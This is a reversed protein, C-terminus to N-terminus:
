SRVTSGMQSCAQLLAGLEAPITDMSQAARRVAAVSVQAGLARLGDKFLLSRDRRQDVERWSDADTIFSSAPLYRIIDREKLGFIEIRDLRGARHAGSLLEAITQEEPSGDSLPKMVAGVNPRDSRLGDLVKRVKGAAVNDVLITFPADSYHMLFQSDLLSLLNKTGRMAVMRVSQKALEDGILVELAAIEHQGEVVLFRRTLQLLDSPSMGHVERLANTDTSLWPELTSVCTRGRSDRAVHVLRRDSDDLMRPSHTAAFITADLRDAVEALGTSLRDVARPHAAREPEDVLLIMETDGATSTALGLAFLTWRYQYDSLSTIPVETLSDRDSAIWRFPSTGDLWRNPHELTLSVVPPDELLLALVTNVSENLETIREAVQPRIDYMDDVIAEFLGEWEDTPRILHRRTTEDVETSEVLVTPPWIWSSAGLEGFYAMQHPAWPPHEVGARMDEVITETPLSSGFPANSSLLEEVFATVDVIERVPSDTSIDRLHRRFMEDVAASGDGPRAGIEVQWRPESATGVPTLTFLGARAIDSALASLDDDSGGDMRMEWDLVGQVAEGLVLAKRFYDGANAYQQAYEAPLRWEHPEWPRRVRTVDSAQDIAECGADLLQFSMNLPDEGCEIFPDPVHLHILAGGEIGLLGLRLSHLVSSKGAGNLGYLVSLGPANELYVRDVAGSNRLTYGLIQADIM